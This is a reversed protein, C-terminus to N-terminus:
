TQVVMSKISKATWDRIQESFMYKVSRWGTKINMRNKYWILMLASILTMYIMVRIGNESRNILHEYGLHQKIFKFFTEIEWRRKYLCPLEEFTYIGAMTKDESVPLNTILVLPKWENKRSDFRYCQIVIIKMTNLNHLKHFAGNDFYALEVRHIRCNDQETEPLAQPVSSDSEMLTEVVKFSQRHHPTLWFAKKNHISFLKKLQNCGRDFIFLDNPKATTEMASGMSVSDCIESKDTCVHLLDPIGNNDLEIVSKVHNASGRKKYDVKIGFSLLKSSLTITVPDVIRLKLSQADGKTISPSIKDCLHVYIAHFFEPDISSLRKGFASHDCSQGTILSYQTELLRLTLMFHNVLGNLLCLFMTQGPLKVQNAKDVHYEAALKDLTSAPILKKLETLPIM